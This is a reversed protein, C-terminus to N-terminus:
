KAFDPFSRMVLSPLQSRPAPKLESVALFAKKGAIKDDSPNGDEAGGGIAANAGDRKAAIQSLPIPEKKTYVSDFEQLLHERILDFISKRYSYPM